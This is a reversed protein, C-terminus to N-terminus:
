KEPAGCKAKKYGYYQRSYTDDKELRKHSAEGRVKDPFHTADFPM